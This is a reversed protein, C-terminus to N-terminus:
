KDTVTDIPFLPKLKSHIMCQTHNQTLQSAKAVTSKVFKIFVPYIHSRPSPKDPLTILYRVRTETLSSEISGVSSRITGNQMVEDVTLTSLDEKLKM